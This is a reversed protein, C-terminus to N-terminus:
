RKCRCRGAPAADRHQMLIRIMNAPLRAIMV